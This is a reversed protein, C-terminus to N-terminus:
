LVSPPPSFILHSKIIIKNKVEKLLKDIENTLSRINLFKLYKIHM